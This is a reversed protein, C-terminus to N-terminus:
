TLELARRRRRSTVHRAWFFSARATCAVATLPSRATSATLLVDAEDVEFSNDHPPKSCRVRRCAVRTRRVRGCAVTASGDAGGSRPPPAPPSCTCPAPIPAGTKRFYYVQEYDHLLKVYYKRLTFSGSTCTPPFEFVASIEKWLKDKIVTQLGGKETVQVYLM